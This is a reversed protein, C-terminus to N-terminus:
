ASLFSMITISTASFNSYLTFKLYGEGVSNPYGAPLFTEHFGIQINKKFQRFSYNHKTIVSVKKLERDIEVTHPSPDKDSPFSHIIIKERKPPSTKPDETNPTEKPTSDATNNTSFSSHPMRNLIKMRTQCLMQNHM